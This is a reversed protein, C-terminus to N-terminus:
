KLIAVASQLQRSNEIMSPFRNTRDFNKFREYSFSYSFESVNKPWHKESSATCSSIRRAPTPPLISVRRSTLILSPWLSYPASDILYLGPGVCYVEKDRRSTVASLLHCLLPSLLYLSPNIFTVSPIQLKYDPATLQVDSIDKDSNALSDHLGLPWLTNLPRM